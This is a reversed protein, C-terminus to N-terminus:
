LWPGPRREGHQGVARALSHCQSIIASLCNGLMGGIGYTTNAAAYTRQWEENAENGIKKQYESYSNWTDIREEFTMSEFSPITAMIHYTTCTRVTEPIDINLATTFM